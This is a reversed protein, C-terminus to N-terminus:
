GRGRRSNASRFRLMEGAFEIARKADSVGSRPDRLQDAYSPAADALALIGRLVKESLVPKREGRGVSSTKKRGGM